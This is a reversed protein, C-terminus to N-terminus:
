DGIVWAVPLTIDPLEPWAGDRELVVFGLSSIDESLCRQQFEQDRQLDGGVISVGYAKTEIREVDDLMGAFLPFEKRLYAYPGQAKMESDLLDWATVVVAVRPKGGDGRNALSRELLRLLECLVVQTPLQSEDNGEGVIHRLADRATVWDLPQINLPSHVRVFLLAGDAREIEDLWERSLESNVIADRWLEGTFDPVILDTPEASAGTKLPARLEKRDSNTDTRGAFEAKLLHTCIADVYETNVPLGARRLMGNNSRLSLWLRGVYNSKGSDPGGVLVISKLSM